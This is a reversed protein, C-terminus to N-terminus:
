AVSWIPVTAGNAKNAATRPRARRAGAPAGRPRGTNSGRGLREGRGAERVDPRASDKPRASPVLRTSAPPSASPVVASAHSRRVEYGCLLHVADRRSTPGSRAATTAVRTSVDGTAREHIAVPGVQGAACSCAVWRGPRGVGLDVSETSASIAAGSILPVRGRVTDGVDLPRLGPADHQRHLALVLAPQLDEGGGGPGPSAIPVTNNSSLSSVQTSSTCRAGPPARRRGRRQHRGLVVPAQHRGAHWEGARDGPASSRRLRRYLM